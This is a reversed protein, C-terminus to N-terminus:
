TSTGQVKLMILGHAPIQHTSSGFTCGSSTCSYWVTSGALAVTGNSNVLDQSGSGPSFSWLYYVHQVNTIGGASGNDRRLNSFSFTICSASTCATGSSDSRNLLGVARTGTQGFNTLIKSRVDYTSDGAVKPAVEIRNDQDVWIVDENALINLADTDASYTVSTVRGGHTYDGVMTNYTGGVVARVDAAILLPSSTLAEIGFQTRQELQSLWPNNLTGNVQGYGGVGHVLLNDLDDWNNYGIADAPPIGDADALQEFTSSYNTDTHTSVCGCEDSGLRWIASSGALPGCWYIDTRINPHSSFAAHIASVESTDCYGTCLYDVKLYTIGWGDFTTADQNEHGMLGNGTEYPVGTGCGIGSGEDSYIGVELNLHSVPGMMNKIQTILGTFDSTTGGTTDCDHNALPPPICYRQPNPTLVGNVRPGQWGNDLQVLNYGLDALAKKDARGPIPQILAQAESLLNVYNEELQCGNSGYAGYDEPYGDSPSNPDCYTTNGYSATSLYGFPNTGMPAANMNASAKVPQAQHAQFVHFAALLSLIGVGCSVKFLVGRANGATGQGLM